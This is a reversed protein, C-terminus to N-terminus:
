SREKILTEIEEWRAMDEACRTRAINISAGAAAAALCEDLHAGRSLQYLFAGAFADGAGYPKAPKVPYVPGQARSGDAAIALSGEEGRKIVVLSVGADILTAAITEDERAESEDTSPLYAAELADFEERTGIVIDSREAITTLTVSAAERSAWSYPRYDVDLAVVSGARRALEVAYIAAERSPSTALAQGSILLIATERLYVPDIDAPRLNLDAANNRYLVTKSGRSKTEAFAVSTSAGSSDSGVNRTDIGMGQLFRLVFRGVSDDAVRTIIGVKMGLRAMAAAINAPSGGVSKHFVETEEISRETDTYLDMNARGLTVCDLARGRPIPKGGPLTVEGPRPDTNSM